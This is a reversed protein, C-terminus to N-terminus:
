ASFGTYGFKGLLRLRYENDQDYYTFIIKPDNNSDWRFVTLLMTIGRDGFAISVQVTINNVSNKQINKAISLLEDNTM